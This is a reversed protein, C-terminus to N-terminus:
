FQPIWVVITILYYIQYSAEMSKEVEFMFREANDLFIDCLSNYSYSIVYCFCVWECIGDSPINLGGRDLDLTFRTFQEAYNFIDNANSEDNRTVYGAVYLLTSKVEYPLTEELQLLSDFM